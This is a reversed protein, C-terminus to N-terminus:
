IRSFEHPWLRTETAPDMWPHMATPLLRRGRAALLEGAREVSQQFLAPLPELASAPGNTKLEVVHLVLENSWSIEGVEVESVVEGRPDGTLAATLLEDVTPSVDLTGADVVMYELEVGFAEFLSLRDDGALRASV